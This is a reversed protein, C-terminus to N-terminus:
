QNNGSEDDDNDADNDADNFYLYDEYDDFFYLYDEYDDFEEEFVWNIDFAQSEDFKAPLGSVNYAVTDSLRFSIYLSFM